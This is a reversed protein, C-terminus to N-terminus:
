EIERNHRTLAREDAVSAGYGATQIAAILNSPEASGNVIALCLDFEVTASKVGPVRSLVREVTRACGGCTMGTIALTTPRPAPSEARINM